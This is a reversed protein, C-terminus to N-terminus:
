SSTACVETQATKTKTKTKTKFKSRPLGSLLVCVSTQAACGHPDYGAAGSKDSAINDLGQIALSVVVNQNYVPRFLIETIETIQTEGIQQLRLFENLDKVAFGQRGPDFSDQM